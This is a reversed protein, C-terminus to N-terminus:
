RILFLTSWANFASYGLAWAASREAATASRIGKVGYRLATAHEIGRLASEEVSGGGVLTVCALEADFGRGWFTIIESMLVLRSDVGAAAPVERGRADVESPFVFSMINLEGAILQRNEKGNVWIRVGRAAGTAVDMVGQEGGEERSALRLVHESVLLSSRPGLANPRVLMVGASVTLASEGEPELWLGLAQSAVEASNQLVGDQLAWDATRFSLVTNQPSVWRAIGNTSVEISHGATGMVAAKLDWQGVVRAGQGHCVAAFLLVTMGTGFIHVFQNM